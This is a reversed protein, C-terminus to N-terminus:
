GESQTAIMLYYVLTLISTTLAAVYTMAAAGLVKSVMPKEQPHIIGLEELHDKARNSADFECPLNILQFLVVLAFLGVGIWILPQMQFILGALLVFFSGSSGFSAAPVFIQRLTLPFYGTAQQMAHGAEHAAVGLAALNNGHYVRESLRLVRENPDFHDNLHGSIQEVGVDHQGFSDLIRRAAEAGTMGSSAAFQEAEKFSAKVRWAALGGLLLGPLLVMIIYTLM